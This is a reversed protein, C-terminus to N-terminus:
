KDGVFTRPGDTQATPHNSSDIKRNCVDQTIKASKKITVYFASSV